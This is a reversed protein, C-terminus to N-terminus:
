SWHPLLAHSRFPNKATLYQLSQPLNIKFKQSRAFDFPRASLAIARPQTSDLLFGHSLMRDERKERM